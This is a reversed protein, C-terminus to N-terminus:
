RRDPLCHRRGRATARVRTQDATGSALSIRAIEVEDDLLPPLYEGGMFAPHIRGIANRDEEELLCAFLEPPLHLNGAAQEKRLIERRTQGAVRSLLHAGLPVPDFYTRPRFTRDIGPVAPVTASVHKSM